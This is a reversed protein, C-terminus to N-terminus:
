EDRVLKRKGWHTEKRDSNYVREVHRNLAQLAAIRAHMMFDRGEAANTLITAATLVKPHNRDKRPVTKALHEIADKLTLLKRGDPLQIPDDFERQWGTKAMDIPKHALERQASLEKQSVNTMAKLSLAM